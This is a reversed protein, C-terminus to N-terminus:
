DRSLVRVAIVIAVIAILPALLSWVLPVGLLVSAGILLWAGSRENGDRQFKLSATSLLLSVFLMIVAGINRSLGDLAELSVGLVVAGRVVSTALRLPREM